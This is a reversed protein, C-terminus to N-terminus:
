TMRSFNTNYDLDKSKTRCKLTYRFYLSSNAYSTNSELKMYTSKCQTRQTLLNKSQGIEFLLEATLCSKDILKPQNLREHSFARIQEKGDFPDDDTDFYDNLLEKGQDCYSKYNYSFSGFSSLCDSYLNEFSFANTQFVFISILCIFLLKM